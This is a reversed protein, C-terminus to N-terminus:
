LIWYQTGDSHLTVAELYALGYVTNIDILKGNVASLLAGGPDPGIRKIRFVKNACSAPDPLTLIITSTSSPNAYVVVNDTTLTTNATVAISPWGVTLSEIDTLCKATMTLAIQDTAIVSRATSGEQARVITLTDTSVGTVRAVEANTPDSVNGTPWITVNFPPTPFRAGQGATVTLSTGSTAPSPPTAVTSIALNKHSDYLSM